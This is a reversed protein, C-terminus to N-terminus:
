SYVPPLSCWLVMLCVQGVRGVRAQLFSLTFSRFYENGYSITMYATQMREQADITIHRPLPISERRSELAWDFFGTKVSPRQVYLRQNMLNVNELWTFGVASCCLPATPKNLTSGPESSPKHVPNTILSFVDTDAVSQWCFYEALVIRFTRLWSFNGGFSDQWLTKCMTLMPDIKYPPDCTDLFSYYHM